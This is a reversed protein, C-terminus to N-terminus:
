KVVRKEDFYIEHNDATGWKKFMANNTLMGPHYNMGFILQTVDSNLVREKPELYVAYNSERKLIDIQGNAGRPWEFNNDVLEIYSDKGIIRNKDKANIRGVRSWYHSKERGYSLFKNNKVIHKGIDGQKYDAIILANSYISSDLSVKRNYCSPLINKTARKTYFGINDSITINDSNASTFAGQTANYVINHHIHIDHSDDDTIIAGGYLAEGINESGAIINHHVEGVRGGRMSVKRLNIYDMALSKKHRERKSWKPNYSADSRDILNYAIELKNIDRAGDVVFVHRSLKKQNIEECTRNSVAHNKVKNYKIAINKISHLIVPHLVKNFFNGEIIVNDVANVYIALDDINEFKSGRIVVTQNSGVKGKITVTARTTPDGTFYRNEIILEQNKATLLHTYRNKYGLGRYTTEKLPKTYLYRNIGDRKPAGGILIKKESKLIKKKKSDVEVISIDRASAYNWGETSRLSLYTTTASAVFEFEVYREKSGTVKESSYNPHKSPTPISDDITIYSAAIHSFNEKKSVDTGILLATVRYHKGIETSFSQYIGGNNERNASYVYRHNKYTRNSIDFSEGLKNWRNKDLNLVMADTFISFCILWLFIQKVQKM